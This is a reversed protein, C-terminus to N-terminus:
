STNNAAAALETVTALWQQALAQEGRARHGQAIGACLRMTLQTPSMPRLVADWDRTLGTAAPARWSGEAGGKLRRQQFAMAQVELREEVEARSRVAAGEWLLVFADDHVKCAVGAPLNVAAAGELAAREAVLLWALAAATPHAPEGEVLVSHLCSARAPAAQGARCRGTGARPSSRRHRRLSSIIWGDLGRAPPIRGGRFVM